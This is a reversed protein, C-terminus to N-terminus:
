DAEAQREPSAPMFRRGFALAVAVVLALPAAVVAVVHPPVPLLVVAGVVAAGVAGSAVLPLAAQLWGGFAGHQLLTGDALEDALDVLLAYALLMVGLAVALPVDLRGAVAGAAAGAIALPYMFPELVALRRGITGPLVCLLGAGATWWMWSPPVVLVTLTVVLLGAVGAATRALGARSRSGPAADARANM